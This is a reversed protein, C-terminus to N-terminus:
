QPFKQTFSNNNPQEFRPLADATRRSSIQINAYFATTDVGGIVKDLQEETLKESKLFKKNPM